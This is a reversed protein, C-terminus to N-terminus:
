SENSTKAPGPASFVIPADIQLEFFGDQQKHNMTAQDSYIIELRQRINELGTNLSNGAKATKALNKTSIRILENEVTIKLSAPSAKDQFIGHKFINEALTLLVLPIFPTFLAIKDYSVEVYIEGDFRTRQLAILKEVQQIEEQMFVTETKYECSISYRMMDSLQMITEASKPSTTLIDQYIMSLTNFLLHPNIQAKLHSNRLNALQVLFQQESIIGRLISQEAQKRVEIEKIHELFLYYYGSFGMFFLGRWLQTFIYRQNLGIEHFGFWSKSGLAYVDILYSSFIYIMIICGGSLPLKWIWSLGKRFVEPYVIKACIYFLIINQGYHFLYDKFNGFIGTALGIIGAEAIIYIAWSLYHIKYKSIYTQFFKTVAM